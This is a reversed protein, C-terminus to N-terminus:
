YHAIGQFLVSENQPADDGNHQNLLLFNKHIVCLTSCLQKTTCYTYLQMNRDQIHAMKLNLNLKCCSYLIHPHTRFSCGVCIENLVGWVDQIAARYTLYVVQLHGVHLASVHLQIGVTNSPSIYNHEVTHTICLFENNSNFLNM